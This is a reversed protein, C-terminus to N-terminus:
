PRPRTSLTHGDTVFFRDYESLATPDPYARMARVRDVRITDDRFYLRFIFTLMWEDKPYPDSLFLVKAGLPLPGAVEGLHELVSRVAAHAAPVWGKGFPKERRHLPRLALALALFLTTQMAIRAPGRRFPHFKQAIADRGAVLATAAFLYWGPLTLYIAFFGRLPIFAVPLIGIFLFLFAFLLVRRRLLAAIAILITWLAVIRLSSFTVAGYFLDSCYHAWAATFASWTFSPRYDPNGIMSGPGATKYFLFAATMLVVPGLALAESKTWDRLSQWARLPPHYLLDHLLLVVPLTVAMEKASLAGLYLSFFIAAQRWRFKSTQRARVYYLFATMYFVGCLLDYITGTSYYLDALRAHYAGLLCALAAIERSLALRRCFAYLLALNALLLLMCAIRYPLPNLGFAAFMTRYFLAGLPRDSQLLPRFCAGYLNMMDDPTFYARVGDGAFKWFIALTVLCAGISGYRKLQRETDATM